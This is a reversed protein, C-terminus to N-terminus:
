KLADTILAFLIFAIFMIDLKEYRTFNAIFINAVRHRIYEYDIRTEKGPEMMTSNNCEEVLQKPSEDMCVVPNDEQYPYPRKYVDLVQEM